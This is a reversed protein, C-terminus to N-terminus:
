DGGKPHPHCRPSPPHILPSGRVMDRTGTDGRGRPLEKKTEPRAALNQSDGPLGVPFRLVWTPRNEAGWLSSPEDTARFDGRLPKYKKFYSKRHNPWYGGVATYVLMLRPPPPASGPPGPTQSAGGPTHLFVGARPPHLGGFVLSHRGLGPAGRTPGGEAWVLAPLCSVSRLWKPDLHSSSLKSSGTKPM